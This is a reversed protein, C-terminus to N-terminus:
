SDHIMIGTEVQQAVDMGRRQLVRVFEDLSLNGDQNFDFLQFVIDVVNDTLSVGCVHSAARQFDERTLMGNAKGYSFLALSFPQLKKRLEAFNKFEEFTIRVDRLHPKNSLEEVRDLLNSLHCMDASAVMSLAFDKALITGRLKYDYHSFELRVMEDQLDRLFKVFKDIELSDKGDKGFFYELLGGDEVSGNVKLGTRLGDRHYAGQRNCVRMLAMVKKFEEKDIQGSDDLDFMKFAVSFSSEPISLLTVFFIYEKFSIHGDNNVDFLMFFESPSCRLDGPNREGRLYGDRVLNSESPPFVPVIARMLDGPRMLLEGDPMGASAFYDFVKEPPSRLRIRKEYNFFIKRRYADGFIFGPAGEPLSLKRFLSRSPRDEVALGSEATSWDALSSTKFFDSDPSSWYLLGVGSGVAFGSIWKLFSGDFPTQPPHSEVNSAGILSLPSPSSPQTSASLHRIPLRQHIFSTPRTLSPLRSM